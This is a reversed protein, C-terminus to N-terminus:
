LDIEIMGDVVRVPYTIVPTVAPLSMAHGTRIDFVAGHRPCIVEYGELDGDGIPGNDHTCADQIAYYQNGVNFVAVPKGNIEFLLRDGPQVDSVPAVAIYSM